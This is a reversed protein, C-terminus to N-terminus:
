TPLYWGNPLVILKRAQFFFVRVRGRLIQFYLLFDIKKVKKFM